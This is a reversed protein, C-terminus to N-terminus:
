KSQEDQSLELMRYIRDNEFYFFGINLLKEPVKVIAPVNLTMQYLTGKSSEGIYSNKITCELPAPHTDSFTFDGQYNVKETYDFWQNAMHPNTTKPVTKNNVEIATKSNEEYNECGCGCLFINLLLIFFILIKKM